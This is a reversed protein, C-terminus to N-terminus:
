AAATARRRCAMCSRSPMGRSFKLRGEGARLDRGRFAPQCGSAPHDAAEGAGPRRDLGRRAFGEFSAQYSASTAIVAGARFFALHADLIQEPADALLRASWLSDSLDNGRAELETALGGDAVLVTDGAVFLSM